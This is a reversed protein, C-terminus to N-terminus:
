SAPRNVDSIWGLIDGAIQISETLSPPTIACLKVGKSWIELRPGNEVDKESDLISYDIFGLNDSASPYVRWSDKASSILPELEKLLSDIDNSPNLITHEKGDINCLLEPGLVPYACSWVMSDAWGDISARVKKLDVNEKYELFKDYAELSEDENWYGGSWHFMLHNLTTDEEGTLMSRLRDIARVQEQYPAHFSSIKKGGRWHEFVAVGDRINDGDIDGDHTFQVFEAEDLGLDVIWFKKAKGLKKVLGDINKSLIAKNAGDINYRLVEADINSGRLPKLYVEAADSDQHQYCLGSQRFVMRSCKKRGNNTTHLCYTVKAIAQGNSPKKGNTIKGNTFKGSKSRGLAEAGAGAAAAPAFCCELGMGSPIDEIKFEVILWLVIFFALVMGIVFRISTDESEDPDAKAVPREGGKNADEREAVDSGHLAKLYVEAADSDQHQYCLGSQRFVMRSCKKKGKNTTHLCYTEKALLSKGHKHCFQSHSMVRTKCGDVSCPGGVAM